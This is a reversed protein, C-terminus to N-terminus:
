GQGALPSRPSRTRIATSRLWSLNEIMATRGGGQAEAARLHLSAGLQRRRDGKKAGSWDRKKYLAMGAAHAREAVKRGAPGGVLLKSVDVIFVWRPASKEAGKAPKAEPELTVALQKGDSRWQADAVKLPAAGRLEAVQEKKSGEKGAPGDVVLVTTKDDVRDVKAELGFPSKKASRAGKIDRKAYDLAAVKGVQAPLDGCTSGPGISVGEPWGAPVDSTDERCVRVVM